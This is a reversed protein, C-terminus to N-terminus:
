VTYQKHIEDALQRLKNGLYSNVGTVYENCMIRLAIAQVPTLTLKYQQQYNIIRKQLRIKLEILGAMVLKDDFDEFRISNLSEILAVIGEAIEHKLQVKFGKM